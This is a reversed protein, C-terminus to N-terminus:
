GALKVQAADIELGIRALSEGALDRLKTAAQEVDRELEESTLDAALARVAARLHDEVVQVMVERPQGIFREAAAFIMEQVAPIRLTASWEVRATPRDRLPVQEAGRVALASLDLRQAREVIPMVLVLRGIVARRGRHGVVIVAEHPLPVVIQRLVLAALFALASLAAGAVAVMPAERSHALASGVLTAAVLILGIVVLALPRRDPRPLSAPRPRERLEGELQDIRAQAAQLDDRYSGAV